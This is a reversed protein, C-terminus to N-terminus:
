RMSSDPSKTNAKARGEDLEVPATLRFTLRRGKQVAVGAAQVAGRAFLSSTQVTIERGGVTISSLTLGFYGAGPTRGARGAQLGESEIRGSV